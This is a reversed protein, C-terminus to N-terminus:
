RAVHRTQGIERWGLPSRTVRGALEALGLASLTEATSLGASAAVEELSRAGRQPLARIVKRVFEPLDDTIHDGGGSGAVEAPALGGPAESAGGTLVEIIEREDSVARAVEDHLLRNCGASSMATVPGPVAMVPRALELARNATAVAGSRLAAEVVVTGRTLAAILRNRTLFRHKLPRAGPPLESVVAGCQGIRALLREHARPYDCDFGCALIAVTPGGAELAGRHAAADIGFAAGSVVSWGRLALEGGLQRAVAEGYPTSARAGVVAVSRLASLRLDLPGRVWLGLPPEDLDKLQTPYELDGPLVLRGGLQQARELMARANVARLAAMLAPRALPGVGRRIREVSEVAGFMALEATVEATGPEIAIALLTRAAREDM